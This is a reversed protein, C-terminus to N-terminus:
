LFFTNNNLERAMQVTTSKIFMFKPANNNEVAAYKIKLSVIADQLIKWKFGRTIAVSIDMRIQVHVAASYTCVM